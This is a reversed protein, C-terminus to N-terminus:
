KCYFCTKVTNSRSPNELYFMDSWCNDCKKCSEQSQLLKVFPSDKRRNVMDFIMNNKSLIFSYEDDKFEVTSLNVVEHYLFHETAKEYTSMMPDDKYLEFYRDLGYIYEIPFNNKNTHCNFKTTTTVTTKLYVGVVNKRKKIEKISFKIKKLIIGKKYLYEFDIKQFYIRVAKNNYTTEHGTIEFIDDETDPTKRVSLLDFAPHCLMADKLSRKIKQKPTNKFYNIKFLAAFDAKM